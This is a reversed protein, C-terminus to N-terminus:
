LTGQPERSRQRTEPLYPAQRLASVPELVQQKAVFARGRSAGLREGPRGQHRALTPVSLCRPKTGLLRKRKMALKATCPSGGVGADHKTESDRVFTVECSSLLEVVVAGLAETLGAVLVLRQERSTENPPRVM